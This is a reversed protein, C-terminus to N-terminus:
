DWSLKDQSKKHGFTLFEIKKHKFFGILFQKRLHL